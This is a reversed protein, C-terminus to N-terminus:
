EDYEEQNKEGSRLFHQHVEEWKKEWGDYWGNVYEDNITCRWRKYYGSKILRKTVYRSMQEFTYHIYTGPNNPDERVPTGINPMSSFYFHWGDTKKVGLIMKAYDLSSSYISIERKLILLLCKDMTTNFYVVSDIKLETGETPPVYQLRMEIWRSLTDAFAQMVEKYEKTERIQKQYDEFCKMQEEINKCSGIFTFLFFVMLSQLLYKM